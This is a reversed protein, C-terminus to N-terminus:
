RETPDGSRSFQYEFVGILNSFIQLLLLAISVALAGLSMLWASRSALAV